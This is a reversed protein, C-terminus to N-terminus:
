AGGAAGRLVPHGGVRGRGGQARRRRRVFQTLLERRDSSLTEVYGQLVQFLLERRDLSEDTAEGLPTLLPPQFKIRPEGDDYTVLRAYAKAADTGKV